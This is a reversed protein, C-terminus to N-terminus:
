KFNLVALSGSFQTCGYVYLEIKGLLCLEFYTKGAVDTTYMAHACGKCVPMEKAVLYDYIEEHTTPAASM